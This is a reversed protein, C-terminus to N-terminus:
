LKTYYYIFCDIMAGPAGLLVMQSARANRWAMTLIQVNWRRSMCGATFVLGLRHWYLLRSKWIKQSEFGLALLKSLFFENTDTLNTCCWRFHFHSRFRAALRVCPNRFAPKWEIPFPFKIRERPPIRPWLSAVGHTQGVGFISDWRSCELRNRWHKSFRSM